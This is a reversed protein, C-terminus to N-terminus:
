TQGPQPLILRTVGQVERQNQGAPIVDEIGPIQVPPVTQQQLLIGIPLHIQQPRRCGLDSRRGPEVRETPIGQERSPPPLMSSRTFALAETLWAHVAACSIRAAGITSPRM